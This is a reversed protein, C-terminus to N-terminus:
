ELIEFSYIKLRESTDRIHLYIFRRSFKKTKHMEVSKKLM